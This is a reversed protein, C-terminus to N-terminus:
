KRTQTKQTEQGGTTDAMLDESCSGAEHLSSVEKVHGIPSDKCSCQSIITCEIAVDATELVMPEQDTQVGSDCAGVISEQDTQVESDCTGVISEQDTQVGSDCREVIPERDTQVGSDCAGVISEQETQVGSDCAGVIPEWDIQVGSDFRGSQLVCTGNPRNKSTHESKCQSEPFADTNNKESSQYFNDNQIHIKANDKVTVDGLHDEMKEPCCNNTTQVSKKNSYETQQQIQDEDESVLDSSSSFTSETPQPSYSASQSSQSSELYITETSMSERQLSCMGRGEVPIENRDFNCSQKRHLEKLPIDGMSYVPYKRNNRQLAKLQDDSGIKGKRGCSATYCDKEFSRFENMEDNYEQYPKNPQWTEIYSTNFPLNQFTSHPVTEKIFGGSSFSEDAHTYSLSDCGCSNFAARRGPQDTSLLNIMNHSGFSNHNDPLHRQTPHIVEDLFSSLEKGNNEWIQQVSTKEMAFDPQRREYLSGHGEDTVIPNKILFDGTEPSNIREYSAGFEATKQSSSFANQHKNLKSSLSDSFEGDNFQKSHNEKYASKWPNPVIRPTCNQSPSHRNSPLEAPFSPPIYSYDETKNFMRYSNMNQSPQVLGTEKKSCLRQYPVNNEMDDICLNSPVCHPSMPLELDHKRLPMKLDRNMNVHTPRKMSEPTKKKSSIQNVMYLNLLDLSVTPNKVPSFVGLLKMKSKLKNREFYEKQKRREQKILVRTRGLDVLRWHVIPSRELLVAM